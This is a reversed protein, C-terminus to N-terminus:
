VVTMVKYHGNIENDNGAISGGLFTSSRSSKPTKPSQTIRPSKTISPSRAPQQFMQSFPPDKLTFPRPEPTEPGNEARRVIEKLARTVVGARTVLDKLSTTDFPLKKQAFKADLLAPDYHSRQQHITELVSKAKASSQKRPRSTPPPTELKRLEQSPRSSPHSGSSDDIFSSRDEKAPSLGSRRRSRNSPSDEDFLDFDFNPSHPSRPPFIEQEDDDLTALNIIGEAEKWLEASQGEMIGQASAQQQLRKLEEVLLTLEKVQGFQGHVSAQRELIARPVLMGSSYSPRMPDSNIPAQKSPRSPEDFEFDNDWDESPGKNGLVWSDLKSANGHNRHVAMDSPVPVSQSRLHLASPGRRGNVRSGRVDKGQRGHVTKPRPSDGLSSDKDTTSHESWEFINPKSPRDINGIPPSERRRHILDSPRPLSTVAHDRDGNTSPKRDNGQIEQEELDDFAWLEDDPGIEMDNTLRNSSKPGQSSAPPSSSIEPSLLIESTDHMPTSSGDDKCPVTARVPTSVNYDEEIAYNRTRQTESFSENALLDQLAILKNKSPLEPPPSEDFITDIPPRRIGSHSSGTAGTRTSDYMTESRSDIDDEDGSMLRSNDNDSGLLTSGRDSPAVSVRHSRNRMMTPGLPSSLPHSSQTSPEHPLIPLEPQPTTPYSPITGPINVEFASLRNLPPLPSSTSRQHVDNSDSPVDLPNTQREGHHRTPIERALYGQFPTLSPSERSRPPQPASVVRRGGMNRNSGKSRLLSGTRSIKWTSPSPSPFMDSFSFSNRSKPESETTIGASKNDMSPPTFANFGVPTFPRSLGSINSERGNAVDNSSGSSISTALLLTPLETIEPIISKTTETRAMTGNANRKRSSGDKAIRAVQPRFFPRWLQSSENYTHKDEPVDSPLLLSSTLSLRSPEEDQMYQQQLTASRQHSTAPRRLTSHLTNTGHLVRQSTSRKVLKNRSVTGSGSEAFSPLIPATSGNSYAISPSGPRPTREPSGTKLSSLNSMRRLWSPASNEAGKFEFAFPGHGNQHESEQSSAHGTKRGGSGNHLRTDPTSAVTRLGIRTNGSSTLPRGLSTRKRLRSTPASTSPPLPSPTVPM